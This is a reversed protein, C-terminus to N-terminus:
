NIQTVSSRSSSGQTCPHGPFIRHFLASDDEVTSLCCASLALAAYLSVHLLIELHLISCRGGHMCAYLVGSPGGAGHTHLAALNIVDGPLSARSSSQTM